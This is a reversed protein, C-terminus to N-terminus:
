FILNLYLNVALYKIYLGTNPHFSIRWKQGVSIFLANSTSVQLLYVIRVISKKSHGALSSNAVDIDSALFATDIETKCFYEFEM